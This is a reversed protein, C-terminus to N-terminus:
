KLMLLDCIKLLLLKSIALVKLKNSLIICNPLNLVLMFNMM